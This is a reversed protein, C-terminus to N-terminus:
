ETTKIWESIKHVFDEKKNYQPHGVRLVHFTQNGLTSVAEQWPMNRKGIKKAGDYGTNYSDFVESIYDDYYRSTYFIIHTPQIVELERQLVKMKIICNTKVVDSTTDKGGSDNCKVINTFAIHEISDDGFITRTIERTYRWYPWSQKWLFDRAEAFTNHFGKERTGPNNRANKGVFLIRKPSKNYDAGVCWCGIPMSLNPNKHCAACIECSGLGMNRYRDFLKKEFENPVYSM